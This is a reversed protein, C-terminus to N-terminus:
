PTQNRSGISDSIYNVRLLLSDRERQLRRVEFKELRLSRDAVRYQQYTAWVTVLGILLTLGTLCRTLFKNTEAKRIQGLYGGGEIFIRGDFTIKYLDLVREDPYIFNDKLLKHLIEQSVKDREPKGIIDKFINDPEHNLLKPLEEKHIFFNSMFASLIIDLQHAHNFRM